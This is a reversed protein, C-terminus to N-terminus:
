SAILRLPAVVYFPAEVDESVIKMEICQMVFFSMCSKLCGTGEQYFGARSHRELYYQGAVRSEMM